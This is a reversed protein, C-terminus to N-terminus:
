EQTLTKLNGGEDLCSMWRIQRARHDSICIPHSGTGPRLSNLLLVVLLGVLVSSGSAPIVPARSAWLPCCSNQYASSLATSPHPSPHLMELLLHCECQVRFSSSSPPLSPLSCGLCLSSCISVCFVRLPRYSCDREM